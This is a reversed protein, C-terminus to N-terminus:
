TKGKFLRTSCLRLRRRRRTPAEIVFLCFTRGERARLPFAHRVDADGLRKSKNFGAWGLPNIVLMGKLM